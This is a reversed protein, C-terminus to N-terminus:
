VAVYNFQGAPLVVGSRTAQASVDEPTDVLRFSARTGDITASLSATVDSAVGFDATNTTTVTGLNVKGLRAAAINTDATTSKSTVSGILAQSTFQAATSPLTVPTVAPDIGAYVTAANFSGATVSTINGNARVVVNNVAGGVTVKGIPKESASFARNSILNSDSMGGKVAVSGISDAEINGAMNGGVAVKKIAGAVEVNQTMDGRATLMDLAPATITTRNSQGAAFSAATVSKLPASSTITTGSATNLTV